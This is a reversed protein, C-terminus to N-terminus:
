EHSLEGRVGLEADIEDSSDDAAARLVAALAAAGRHHLDITVRLKNQHVAVIVRPGDRDVSFHINKPM